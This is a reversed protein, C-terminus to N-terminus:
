GAYSEDQEIRSLIWDFAGGTVKAGCSECFGAMSVNLPGGCNPCSPDTRAPGSATASRILTWYETYRRMIAQSGSVVRGSTVEVTYDFGTGYLRLTIADFFPDAQVKVISFQEISTHTLVNKLGQKRYADIWYQQSLYLRDTVFPRVAEWTLNTWASQLTDFVLTLRAGFSETSFGPDRAKLADLAQSMGPQYVTPLDTGEEEVTGTLLPGQAEESELTIATVFWDLEGSGFAAGCYQCRDDQSGEVPGACSPCHFAMIKDPPRSKADRRRTLQWTEAAYFGMEPSPAAYRETYNSEFGVTISVHDQDLGTVSVLRQAGVVVGTVQVPYRAASRAM